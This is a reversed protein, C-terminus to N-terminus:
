FGGVIKLVAAAVGVLGGAAALGYCVALSARSPAFRTLM